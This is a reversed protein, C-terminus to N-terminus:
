IEQSAKELDEPATIQCWKDCVVVKIDHHGLAQVLTQPLGFEERGPIKVLNYDFIAPQLVYLGTNVLPSSTNGEMVDIVVGKDDVEVAGAPSSDTRNKAVLVWDHQIAERLVEEDYIDDGMMVLFKSDGIHDRCLWLAGGTGNLESQEVYSIKKDGFSDGFSEKIQDKLYGVVIIVEEVEKPLVELKHQILSKGAVKLMPKPTDKTLDKMRTGLGAALIVAKM